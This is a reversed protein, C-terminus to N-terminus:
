PSFQRVYSAFFRGFLSHTGRTASISLREGSRDELAPDRGSLTTWALAAEREFIHVDHYKDALRTAEEYSHAVATSIAVRVTEHPEIRISRRLSFVPDLVAGVTNSLPRDEIVAIPESTDHGRGLFRARDTEYQISGVTENDTAFTHIAWIPEDTETRAQALRDLCERGSPIRNRHFLNSFAPHAADALRAGLVIEAYSTIEIERVDPSNNTISVAGSRPM